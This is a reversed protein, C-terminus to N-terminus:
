QDHEGVLVAASPVVGHDDLALVEHPGAQAAVAGPGILKLGRDVGHV